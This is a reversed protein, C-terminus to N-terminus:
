TRRVTGTKEKSCDECVVNRATKDITIATDFGQVHTQEVLIGDACCDAQRPLLVPLLGTAPYLSEDCASGPSVSIGTTGATRDNGTSQNAILSGTVTVSEGSIGLAVSRSNFVQLNHITIRRGAVLVGPRQRDLPFLRGNSGTVTDDTSTCDDGNLVLNFGNAGCVNGNLHINHMNAGVHLGNRANGICRNGRILIEGAAQLRDDPVQHLVIGDEFEAFAAVNDLIQCNRCRGIAINKDHAYLSHVGRIISNSVVCDPFHSNNHVGVSLNHLIANQLTINEIVIGELPQAAAVKICCGATNEEGGTQELPGPQADLQNHKNGDITGTGGIRVQSHEILIASHQTALCAKDECRYSRGSAADLHLTNGRIAVIRAHGAHVRRTQFTAGHRPREGESHQVWDILHIPLQEDHLTVEQGVAYASGKTVIVETDGPRVDQRLTQIVYDAIRLIGNIELCQNSRPRLPRRLTYIGPPVLVHRADTDLAQQIAPADDAVGDGVAGFDLVSITDPRITQEKKM